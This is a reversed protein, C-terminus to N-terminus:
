CLLSHNIKIMQSKFNLNSTKIVAYKGISLITITNSYNQKNKKSKSYSRKITCQSNRKVSNTPKQIIEEKQEQLIDDSMNSEEDNINNREPVDNDEFGEAM